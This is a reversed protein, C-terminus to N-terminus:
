TLLSEETGVKLAVLRHHFDSRTAPPTDSSRRSSTCPCTTTWIGAHSSAAAITPCSCSGAIASDSTRTWCLQPALRYAPRQDRLRIDRRYIRTSGSNVLGAYSTRVPTGCPGGCLARGDASQHVVEEDDLGNTSAPIFGSESGLIRPRRRSPTLFTPFGDPSAHGVRNHASDVAPTPLEGTQTLNGSRKCACRM